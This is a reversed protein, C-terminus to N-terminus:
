VYKEASKLKLQLRSYPTASLVHSGSKATHFFQHYGMSAVMVANDTCLQSPPFFCQKKVESGWRAMQSRLNQNCAVGGAVYVCKVEPHHSAAKSLKRVLQNFAEQQFSAAIDAIVHDPLSHDITQSNKKYNSTKDTQKNEKHCPHYHNKLSRVLHVMHTKLGSYSLQISSGDSMMKPMAYRNPDGRRAYNEILAGSPYDLGLLGGVKDFCEGCADDITHAILEMDVENHIYFLHTHGGSVVYGLAPFSPELGQQLMHVFIGHFHAMVHDVMVLPKKLSWAVGGAFQMGMLLCGFLGPGQTVAVADIDGLSVDSPMQNKLNLFLPSLRQLHDRAALEPVVGGYPRHLDTQSAVCSALVDDPGKLVAFATEDCSSEIGLTLFHPDLDPM